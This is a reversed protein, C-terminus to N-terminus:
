TKLRAYQEATLELYLGGRGHSLAYEFAQHDEQSKLAGGREAMERIKEESRFTRIRGIPTKLDGELFNVVWSQVFSKGHPEGRVFFNMYVRRKTEPSCACRQCLAETLFARCRGCM